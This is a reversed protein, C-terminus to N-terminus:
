GRKAEELEKMLEALLRKSEEVFFAYADREAKIRKATKELREIAEEVENMTGMESEEEGEDRFRDRDGYLEGPAANWWTPDLSREM